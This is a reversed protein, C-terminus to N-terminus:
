SQASRVAELWGTGFSQDPELYTGEAWENWANIFVLRDGGESTVSEQQKQIVGRLWRRFNCPTAGFFINANTGRRATNDWGMMVAPHRHSNSQENLSNLTVNVLHEYDYIQGRFGPQTSYRTGTIVIESLPLRHPPFEFYSDVGVHHPSAPLDHDDPFSVWGAALHVEGIGIDKFEERLQAMATRPSPIHMLRYILILPKGNFSFYRRDRIFKSIDAVFRKTWGDFYNQPLLVDSSNGDWRRTWPENAWCILYPFDPENSRLMDLIPRDLITRGDFWYHYYCFASIGYAKALTAQDNRISSVRLDYFGLDAPLRPQRHEPFQRQAQTANRWETFGKGWWADNEPIPHYQPLYFAVSHVTPKKTSFSQHIIETSLGFSNDAEYVEGAEIIRMGANQALLGIMREIAHPLTGDLPLPEPEYDELRLKLAALPRLVFPRIWYISGAPFRADADFEPLGLPRSLRSIDDSNGVWEAETAGGISGDAVVIALDPDKRFTAILTAVAEANKLIGDILSRRWEDGDVLHLSKKTHLKCILEYKFLVGANLLSVFSLIDRGINGFVLVIAGPFQQQIEPALHDSSGRVLIAYIDVPEEIFGISKALEPWLDAYYIHAVVAIKATPEISQLTFLDPCENAVSAKSNSDLSPVVGSPVLNRLLQSPPATILEGYSGLSKCSDGPFAARFDSMPFEPSPLRGEKLGNLSFHELANMGTSRVDAHSAVYWSANFMPHTPTQRENSCTVYHVLPQQRSGAAEQSKDLYFSGDFLPHTSSKRAEPCSLYHMMPGVFKPIVTTTHARYWTPDFLMHPSRGELDGYIIFHSLADITSLDVDPNTHAYWGINFLPHPSVRQSPERRLYHEIPTLLSDHAYGSQRVYWDTDFLPHPSLHSVSGAMCFHDIAVVDKSLSYHAKYWRGDFIGAKVLADKLISAREEPLCASESAIGTKPLSALEEKAQSVALWSEYLQDKVFERYQLLRIGQVHRTLEAQARSVEIPLKVNINALEKQADVLSPMLRLAEKYFEQAEKREGLQKHLHGLQLHTDAVTPSMKLSEQYAQLAGLKWGAEKRAHGLQVLIAASDEHSGQALYIEYHSAALSWEQNDRAKDAADRIEEIKMRQFSVDAEFAPLRNLEDRADTLGMDLSLAHEYSKRAAALDRRMKHLHGISLYTDADDPILSLAKNYATLAAEFQGAEKRAHGLQVLISSRNSASPDNLYRDYRSAAKVWDGADRAANAARLLNKQRFRRDFLM